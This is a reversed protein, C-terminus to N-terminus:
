QEQWFQLRGGVLQAFIERVRCLFVLPSRPALM